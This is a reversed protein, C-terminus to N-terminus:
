KSGNKKVEKLTLGKRNSKKKELYEDITDKKAM